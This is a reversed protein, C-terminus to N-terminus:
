IKNGSLEHYLKLAYTDTMGSLYDTILQLKNYQTNGYTNLKEFVYKHNQSIIAFLKGEKTKPDNYNTSLIARVFTDLLFNLAREGALERMLVSKHNFNEYSLRKFAKRLPAADSNLLLDKDFKGDIIDDHKDLFIKSAEQLMFTQTQIRFNQIVISLKNPFDSPIETDIKSFANIFKECSTGKLETQLIDQLYEKSIIQKKCGDEIDSVSYAIDDAAELLFVLPHRNNNLGLTDNIENFDEKESQFYGFKKFSINANKPQNGETSSKPYKIVSSLIPFTLNYSYQDRSLNLKRLIRFGQVNGDFYEFDAKEEESLHLYANEKFFKKFFTQIVEEGFHGFPPNGIDHILGVTSLISSLHGQRKADLKNAKILEKEISFGLGRGFTSVELSHTLRTRVFDFEELPFVQAKDQLGRFPASGIVRSYDNEFVNRGDLSHKGVSPARFREEALLKEWTEKM